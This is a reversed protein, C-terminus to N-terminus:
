IRNRIFFYLSYLSIAIRTINKSFSLLSNFYSAQDRLRPVYFLFTEYSSIFSNRINFQFKILIGIPFHRMKFLFRTILFHFNCLRSVNTTLLPFDCDRFTFVDRFRTVLFLAVDQFIPFSFNKFRTCFTIKTNVRSVSPKKSNRLDPPTLIVWRNYIM